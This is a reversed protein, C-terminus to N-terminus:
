LTVKTSTGVYFSDNGAPFDQRGIVGNVPNKDPVPFNPPLFERSEKYNSEFIDHFLDAYYINANENEDWSETNAYAYERVREFTMELVVKGTFMHYFHVNKAEANIRYYESKPYAEKEAKLGHAVRLLQKMDHDWNLRCPKLQRLASSGDVSASTELYHRRAKRAETVDDFHFEDDVEDRDTAWVYL